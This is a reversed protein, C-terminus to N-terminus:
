LHQARQTGRGHPGGQCCHCTTGHRALGVAATTKRASVEVLSLPGHLLIPHLLHTAFQFSHSPTHTTLIARVCVRRGHSSPQSGKRPWEQVRNRESDHTSRLTACHERAGTRTLHSSQRSLPQPTFSTHFWGSFLHPLAEERRTYDGREKCTHRILKRLYVVTNM